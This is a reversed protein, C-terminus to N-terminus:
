GNPFARGEAQEYHAADTDITAGEHLKGLDVLAMNEPTAALKEFSIRLTSNGLEGKTQWELPNGTASDIVYTLQGDASTIRTAERGEYDLHEEVKAGASQLLKFADGKFQHFEGGNSVLSQAIKAEKSGAAMQQQYITNTEPDYIQYLGSGNLATEVAGAEATTEIRRLASASGSLWSEDSWSATTGDGNDQSGSLKFHVITNDPVVLAAQAKEVISPGGAGFVDVVSLVVLAVVAVGVAIAAGRVIPRRFFPVPRLRPPRELRPREEGQRQIESM